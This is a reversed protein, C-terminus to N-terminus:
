GGWGGVRHREGPKLVRGVHTLMHDQLDRKLAAHYMHYTILVYRMHSAEHSEKMPGVCVQTHAVQLTRPVHRGRVPVKPQM